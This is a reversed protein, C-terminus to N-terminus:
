EGVNLINMTGDEVNDVTIGMLANAPLPNKPALCQPLEGFRQQWLKDRLDKIGGFEAVGFAFRVHSGCRQRM